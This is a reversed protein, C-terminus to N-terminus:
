LHCDCCVYVQGRSWTPPRRYRSRLCPCPEKFYSSEFAQVKLDASRFLSSITFGALRHKLM